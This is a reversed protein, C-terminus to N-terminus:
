IHILSLKTLERHLQADVANLDSDPRDITVKLVQGDLREFAIFEFQDFSNTM